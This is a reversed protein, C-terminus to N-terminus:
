NFVLSEKEKFESTNTNDTLCSLIGKKEPSSTLSYSRKLKEMQRMSLRRKLESEQLCLETQIIRNNICQNHNYNDFHNDGILTLSEVRFAASNDNETSHQITSKIKQLYLEKLRKENNFDFVEVLSKAKEVFTYCAQMDIYGCESLYHELKIVEIMLTSIECEKIYAMTERRCM